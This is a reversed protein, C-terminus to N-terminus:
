NKNEDTLGIKSYYLWAGLFLLGMGVIGLGIPIETRINTDVTFMAILTWLYFSFMFAVTAAKDKIKRSLEDDVALGKKEDKLRRMGIAMSIVVTILVAGAITYEFVGLSDMTSYAWLGLAFTITGALTLLMMTKTSKM